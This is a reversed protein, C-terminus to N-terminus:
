AQDRRQTDPHHAFGGPLRRGPLAVAQIDADRDVHRGALEVVLAHDAFEHPGDVVGAEIGAQQVDFQGLAAQDVVFVRGDFQDLLEALQASADM